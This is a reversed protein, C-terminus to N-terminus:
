QLFKRTVVRDLGYKKLLAKNKGNLKFSFSFYSNKSIKIGMQALKYVIKRKFLSNIFYFVIWFFKKFVVYALCLHFIVHYLMKWDACLYYALYSSTFYFKLNSDRFGRFVGGFISWGIGILDGMWFFEEFGEEMLNSSVTM